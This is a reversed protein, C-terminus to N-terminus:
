GTNWLQAPLFTYNIDIVSHKIETDTTDHSVWFNAISLIWSSHQRLVCVLPGQRGTQPNQPVTLPVFAGSGSSNPPFFVVRACVKFTDYDYRRVPPPLGPATALRETVLRRLDSVSTTELPVDKLVVNRINRHQFSRIVRINLTAM